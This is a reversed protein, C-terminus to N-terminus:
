FYNVKFALKISFGIFITSPKETSKIDINFFIYKKDNISFFLRRLDECYKCKNEGIIVFM